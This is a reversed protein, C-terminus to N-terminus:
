QIGSERLAIARRREAWVSYALGDLQEELRERQFDRGDTALNLAGYQRRGAYIRRALALLPAREDDNLEDLLGVLEDHEATRGATPRTTM